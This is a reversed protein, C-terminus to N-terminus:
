KGVVKIELELNKNFKEKVKKQIKNILKIVDEATASGMNNIYNAHLKSVVAGGVSVGKMGAEDILRSAYDGEPNKFVCGANHQGVPQTKFRHRFLNKIKKIINNKKDKKLSFEASIIINKEPIGSNRYSFKLSKRDLKKINGKEDMVTVSKIISGISGTKTGANMTVAGGVTGPIGALFEVGGLGREICKKIFLPLPCGAGAIISLSYPDPSGRSGKTLNSFDGTLRIVIGRIGKDKVLINSGSGVILYPIKKKNVFLILKKLEEITKVEVYFDCPGGIRFTTHRLMPENQLIKGTVIKGIKSRSIM